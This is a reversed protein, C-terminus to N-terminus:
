TAGGRLVEARKHIFIQPLGEAACKECGEVCIEVFHTRRYCGHCMRADHSSCCVEGRRRRCVRCTYPYCSICYGTSEEAPIERVGDPLGGRGPEVPICRGCAGTRRDGFARTTFEDIRHTRSAKHPKAREDLWAFSPEAYVDRM